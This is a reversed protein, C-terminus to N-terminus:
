RKTGTPTGHSARVWLFAPAPIAGAELLEDKQYLNNNQDPYGPGVYWSHNKYHPLYTVGNLKYTVYETRESYEEKM